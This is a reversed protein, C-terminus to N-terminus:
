STGGHRRAGWRLVVEGGRLEAGATQWRGAGGFDDASGGISARNVDVFRSGRLAGDGGGKHVLLNRGRGLFSNEFDRSKRV